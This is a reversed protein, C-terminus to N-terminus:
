PCIVGHYDYHANVVPLGSLDSTGHMTLNGKQAGEVVRATYNVKLHPPRALPAVADMDFHITQGILPEVIGGTVQWTMAAPRFVVVGKVVFPGLAIAGDGEIDGTVLGTINPLVGSQALQGSVTYCGSNGAVVRNPTLGDTGTLGETGTPVDGCGVALGVFALPILLKKM